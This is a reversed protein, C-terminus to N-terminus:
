EREDDRVRLEPGCAPLRELHVDPTGYLCIKRDIVVKASAPADHEVTSVVYRDAARRGIDIWFADLLLGFQPRMVASETMLLRRLTVAGNRTLNTLAAQAEGFRLASVSCRM